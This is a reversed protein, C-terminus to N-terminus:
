KLKKDIQSLLWILPETTGYAHFHNQPHPSGLASSTFFRYNAFKYELNRIFHGLGWEILRKKCLQNVADSLTAINDQQMLEKAASEGIRETLDFADVKNIVIACPKKITQNPKVHYNKELNLMMRDFADDLMMDSPRIISDDHKLSNSYDMMLEPISFPDIMFILGHFYEYFKHRVLIDSSQFSEGAADYFYIIKESTWRHPKIFFNFAQPTLQPTKAPVIGQEFHQSVRHYLNENNDNLFRIQWSKKPAVEEILGKVASFLFCTKGVSPGGVIPICIPTATETKIESQCEPCLTPLKNRGHFSTTPLQTGCLCRHTLIGYSSPILNTHVRQCKPCIYHPLDTKHYCLPCAIFTHRWFRYLKDIGWLLSFSLYIILFVILLLSIHIASLLLFFLTGFFVVSVSAFISGASVFRWFWWPEYYWFFKAEKGYHRASAANRQWCEVITNKLDQYGKGFFYSKNAPQIKM